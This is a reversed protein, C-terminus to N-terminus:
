VNKYRQERIRNSRARHFKAPNHAKTRLLDSPIKTLKPGNKRSCLNEVASIEYVEKRLAVFNPLRVHRALQCNSLLM